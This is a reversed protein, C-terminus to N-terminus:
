GAPPVLTATPVANVTITFPASAAGQNDPGAPVKVRVVVTGPDYFAHAIAYQSGPALTAAAIAHGGGGSADQQELVIAHGSKDPLVTGSFTVDQGQGVTSASVRATLADRVGLLLVASVVRGAPASSGSSGTAGSTGTSGSAGTTVTTGTTATTGSRRDRATGLVVRYATNYLPAAGFSYAGGAGSFTQGVQHWATRADRAWLALLQGAGGAVVGSITDSGGAVIPNTAAGITLATNQAQEIEYSISDSASAINIADNRLVVRITADGEQSSPIVFSHTISYSGDAAVTGRDLTHWDAGTRAGQRQLVVTAGARAPSVAGAFVYPVGTSLASGDPESVGGPGSVGLSVLAAVRELVVRSRIGGAVVYCERNTDVRGDARTFEYAGSTDTRTSQVATFGGPVGAM